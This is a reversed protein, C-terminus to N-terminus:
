AGESPLCPLPPSPAWPMPQTQQVATEYLSLHPHSELTHSFCCLVLCKTQSRFELGLDPWPWHSTTPGWNGQWKFHSDHYKVSIPISTLSLPSLPLFSGWSTTKKTGPGYHTDAINAAHMFLLFFFPCMLNYLKQVAFSVMVLIFLCSIAHFFMNAFWINSLPNM